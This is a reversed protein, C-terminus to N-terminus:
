NIKYETIVFEFESHAGQKIAIKIQDESLGHFFIQEDSYGNPVGECESILYGDISSKDNKWYGMVQFVKQSKKQKVM